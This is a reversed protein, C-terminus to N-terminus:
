IHDKILIKKLLNNIFAKMPQVLFHRDSKCVNVSISKAHVHMQQHIGTFRLCCLMHMGYNM